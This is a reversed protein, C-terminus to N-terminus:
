NFAVSLRPRQAFLRPLGFGPEIIILHPTPPHRPNPEGHPLLLPPLPPPEEAASAAATGGREEM